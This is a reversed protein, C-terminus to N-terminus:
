NKSKISGTVKEKSFSAMMGKVQPIVHRQFFDANDKVVNEFILTAAGLNLKSVTDEDLDTTMSLIKLVSPLEKAVSLAIDIKDKNGKSDNLKFLKGLIEVLDAIQGIQIGKIEIEKDGIKIKRSDVFISKLESM